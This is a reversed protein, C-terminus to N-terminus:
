NIERLQTCIRDYFGGEPNITNLAWIVAGAVPPVELLTYNFHYSPNDKNIKEKLTDILFPNRGKVFVSGALVINVEEDHPYRMEDIMCSIGGAYSYAVNRLIGTAVRDNKGVADFLINLIRITEYSGEERMEYIRDVWDYKTSETLGFYELLLPTMCSREDKRFLESFVASVVSRSMHGGGGKEASVWGVGGIQLTKGERNIGALTCGSGNIACIGTGTRSGAPIGLFADNVLTFNEFGLKKLIGSIISHQKRTDVGAIGLVAHSIQKMSIGPGSITRNLFQGFEDEFQGYSGPLGEHNLPGWQGFQVKNGQSDFLALHSKTAGVDVGIVYEPSM